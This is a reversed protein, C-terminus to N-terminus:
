TDQRYTLLYGRMYDIADQKDAYPQTYQWDVLTSLLTGVEPGKQVGFLSQLDSGCLLPKMKWADELGLMTTTSQALEVQSKASEVSLGYFVARLATLSFARKWAPGISSILRGIMVADTSGKMVALIEEYGKTLALVEQVHRNSLKLADRIIYCVLPEWRAPKFEYESQWTPILAISMITFLDYPGDIMQPVLEVLHELRERSPLGLPGRITKPLTFTLHYLGVHVLLHFGSLAHRDSFIKEVEIGVRERSVKSAFALHVDSCQMAQYLADDITYQFRTAFRVVRLLRLPDDLLTERPELPTRVVGNLLDPHGKLCTVCLM